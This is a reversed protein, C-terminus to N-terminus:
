AGYAQRVRAAAHRIAQRPTRLGSCVDAFMEVVVFGSLVAASGAGLEGAHGNPLMDRFGDRFIAVRPDASWARSGEYRALAQTIYGKSAKLWPEYQEPACMFRLYERCADPYKTYRFIFAQFVVSSHVRRGDLGAPLAAHGTDAAIRRLRPDDSDRATVYISAGNLTLSIEEALFARNNTTDLWSLTGWAFTEQLQRAYELAAVTEPADLSVRGAADVVRAGHAWLCWHAYENADGSAHGLAFGAPTGNKKLNRCLALFGSLDRPFVEFGAAQAHSIRYTMVANSAGQPLAIWRGRHTGYTRAVDYWGGNRAGLDEALDTLDLLQDAIAHPEDNTGFIIDPGANMAAVATTRARIDEWAETELRMEVGTQKGFKNTNAAFMEYDGAVFQRWRLVRLRAGREPEFRIRPAAPAALGAVAGALVGAGAQLFGRRSKITM